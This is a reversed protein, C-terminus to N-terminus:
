FVGFCFVMKGLSWYLLYHYILDTHFCRFKMKVKSSQVFGDATIIEKLVFGGSRNSPTGRSQRKLFLATQAPAFTLTKTLREKGLGSRQRSYIGDMVCRCPTMRHGQEFPIRGAICWRAAGRHCSLYLRGQFFVRLCLSMCSIGPTVLLLESTPIHKCSQCLGQDEGRHVGTHTHMLTTIYTRAEQPQVMQSMGAHSKLRTECLDHANRKRWVRFAASDWVEALRFHNCDSSATM